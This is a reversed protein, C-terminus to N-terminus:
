SPGSNSRNRTCLQRKPGQGGWGRPLAPVADSHGRSGEFQKTVALMQGVVAKGVALLRKQRHEPFSGGTEGGGELADRVRSVCMPKVLVLLACLRVRPTSGERGGRGKKRM